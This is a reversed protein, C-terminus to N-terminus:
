QRRVRWPEAFRAGPELPTMLDIEETFINRCAIFNNQADPVYAIGLLGTSDSTWKLSYDFSLEDGSSSVTKLPSSYVLNGTEIEVVRVHDSDRREHLSRIQLFALYKGDPSLALYPVEIRYPALSSALLSVEFTRPDLQYFLYEIEGDNQWGDTAVGILLIGSTSPNNQWFLIDVDELSVVTRMEDTETDILEIDTSFTNLRLVQTNNLWIWNAGWSNTPHTRGGFSDCTQSLLDLLCPFRPEQWRISLVDDPYYWLLFKDAQIHKSIGDVSRQIYVAEEIGTPWHYQVIRSEGIPGYETDNEIFYINQSPIDILFDLIQGHERHIDAVPLVKDTLEDFLWIQLYPADNSSWNFLIITESREQACVNTFLVLTLGLLILSIKEALVWKM